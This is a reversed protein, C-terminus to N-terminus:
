MSQRVDGINLEVKEGRPRGSQLSFVFKELRTENIDLTPYFIPSMVPENLRLEIQPVDSTAIIVQAATLVDMSNGAATAGRPTIPGVVARCGQQSQM